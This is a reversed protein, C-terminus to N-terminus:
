KYVTSRNIGNSCTPCSLHPEAINNRRIYHESEGSFLCSNITLIKRVRDFSILKLELDDLIVERKKSDLLDLRDPDVNTSTDLEIIGLERYQDYKSSCGENIVRFWADASYVKLLLIVFILVMRKM